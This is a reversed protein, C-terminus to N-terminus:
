RAGGTAPAAPQAGPAPSAPSSDRAPTAAAPSELMRLLELM